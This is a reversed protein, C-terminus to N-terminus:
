RVNGGLWPSGRFVAIREGGVYFRDPPQNSTLAIPALAM